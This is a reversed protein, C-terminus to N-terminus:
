KIKKKSVKKRHLWTKAHAIAALIAKSVTDYRQDIFWSNSEAYGYRKPNISQPLSTCCWDCMMPSTHYQEKDDSSPYVQCLRLYGKCAPLPCKFRTSTKTNIKAM